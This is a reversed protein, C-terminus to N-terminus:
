ESGNKKSVRGCLPTQSPPIAALEQGNSPGLRGQAPKRSVRGRPAPKWGASAPRLGARSLAIMAVLSLSVLIGLIFCIRREIGGDFTLDITCEGRCGPDIAIMGLGDSRIAVPRGNVSARWGPDYTIQLSVTQDGALSAVVSGQEPNQWRLDALPFAPNELAEVYRRLQVVDLGHVPRSAVLTGSPVVHALSTSRLPVQYIFDDGEHWVLPLLGAFKEPHLLPHSENRSALGPVTIAGCGFAKLWLVSIPGDQDGANQGSYITYLAVREVWNAGAEHGAALQPNDAFINFWFEPDGSVM